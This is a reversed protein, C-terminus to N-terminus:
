PTIHFRCQRNTYGSCMGKLFTTMQASSEEAEQITGSLNLGDTPTWTGTGSLRLPGEITGLEIDIKSGGCRLHAVQSGFDLGPARGLRISEWAIDVLGLISKGELRLSDSRIHLMGGPQLANARPVAAVLIRGPLRLDLRRVSISSNSITLFLPLRSGDLGVETEFRGALIAAQSSTWRLQGIDTLNGSGERWYLWGGGSWITGSSSRLLLMGNTEREIFNGIYASPVTAIMAILYALCGVAIYLASRRTM